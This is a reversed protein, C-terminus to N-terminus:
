VRIEYHNLNGTLWISNLSPLVLLAKENLTYQEEPSLIKDSCFNHRLLPASDCSTFEKHFFLRQIKKGTEAVTRPVGLYM